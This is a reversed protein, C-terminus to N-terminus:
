TVETPKIRRTKVRDHNSFDWECVTICCTSTNVYANKIHTHINRKVFISMMDLIDLDCTMRYEYLGSTNQGIKPIM